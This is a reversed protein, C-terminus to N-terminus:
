YVETITIGHLAEVLKKKIRYVPLKATVKSKVDETVRAGNETYEFDARYKCILKGNVVCPFEPQFMMFSISGSKELVCLEGYRAAERKSDFSIGDVVTKVANYKNRKM